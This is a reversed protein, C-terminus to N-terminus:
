KSRSFFAKIRARRARRWERYDVPEGDVIKVKKEFKDVHDGAREVKFASRNWQLLRYLVKYRKSLPFSSTLNMVFATLDYFPLYYRIRSDGRYSAFFSDKQRSVGASGLYLFGYDTRHYKGLMAMAFTTSFDSGLYKERVFSRRLVDSRYLSYFRGNTHWHSLVDLIRQEVSSDLEGDGMSMPSFEGNDFRIPCTSAVYDPHDVLFRLNEEVFNDSRIDDAAAWFYYDATAHDLLYSFNAEAGINSEQRIYVIREDKACYAACIEATADTSCNDSVVIELNRHTQGLLNGLVAPLTAEGNYIPVGVSVKISGINIM